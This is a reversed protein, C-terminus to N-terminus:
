RTSKSKKGRKKTRRPAKSKKFSKTGSSNVSLKRSSKKSKIRGFEAGTRALSKFTAAPPAWSIGNAKRAIKSGDIIKRLQEVRRSSVGLVDATKNSTIFQTDIRITM